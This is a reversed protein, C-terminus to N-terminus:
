FRANLSMRQVRIESFLFACPGQRRIDALHSRAPMNPRALWLAHHAYKIEVEPKNHREVIQSSFNELCVAAQLSSRVADLYPKLTM